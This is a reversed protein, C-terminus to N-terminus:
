AAVHVDDVGGIRHVHLLNAAIMEFVVARVVDDDLIVNQILGVVVAAHAHNVHRTFQEAVECLLM